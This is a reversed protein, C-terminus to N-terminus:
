PAIVFSGAICLKATGQKKIFKQEKFVKGQGKVIYGITFIIFCIICDGKRGPM